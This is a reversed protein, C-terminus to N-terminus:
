GDPEAKAAQLAAIRTAIPPYSACDTAARATDYTGDPRRYHAAIADDLDIGCHTIYGAFENPAGEQLDRFWKLILARAADDTNPM